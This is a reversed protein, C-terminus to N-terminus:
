WDLKIGMRGVVGHQDAGDVGTLYSVDGYISLSQSQRVTGGVGIELTTTNRRTDIVDTAAFITHDTGSMTHWLNAKLYPRWLADSAAFMGYLRLGIRGTVTDDTAFAVTSFEDQGDDLSLRQWIGQAQPELTLGPALRIPYGGELSATAAFGGPAFGVGRDSNAHGGFATAQLVGDAYWGAPGVHSWYGGVSTGTLRAKGADAGTQGIAFGRVDGESQAHGVYIGANDRHGQATQRRLVEQGAQVGVTYGDFSPSVTGSWSEEGHGGFVRGWAGPTSGAAGEAPRVDNDGGIREHYTGLTMRTVTRAMAPLVSYVAVEPRYLPIPEPPGASAVMTSRLYWNDDNGPTVGGRFLLYEFAGAAAPSALRFAGPVTTGGGVAEVVLIGDATTLAGAGGLNTIVIGTDGTATGGSIRLRDSPSGDSGLISHLILHGGAGLYNGVITFRDNATAAGNTLDIAGSNTVSVLQGGAFPVISANVGGGPSSPAPRM